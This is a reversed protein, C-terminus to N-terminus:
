TGEGKEGGLIALAKAEHENWWKLAQSGGRSNALDRQALHSGADIVDRLIEALADYDSAKVYDGDSFELLDWEGSDNKGWDYRKVQNM